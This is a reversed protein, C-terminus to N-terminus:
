ERAREIIWLFVMGELVAFPWSQTLAFLFVAILLAFMNALFLFVRYPTLMWAIMDGWTGNRPMPEEGAM